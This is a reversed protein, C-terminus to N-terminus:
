FQCGLLIWGCLEPLSDYRQGICLESLQQAGDRMAYLLRQDSLLKSRLEPLGHQFQLLFVRSHVVLLFHLSADLFPLLVAPLFQMPLQEPLDPLLPHGFSLIFLSFGLPLVLASVGCLCPDFQGICPQVGMPLFYLLRHGCRVVSLLNFQGCLVWKWVARLQRRGLLGSLAGGFFFLASLEWKGDSLVHRPVASV